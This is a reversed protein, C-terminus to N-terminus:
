PNVGEEIYLKLMEDNFTLRNEPGKYKHQLKKIEPALSQMSIMSRTSKVTFPTLLGMIIITLLAIAIAYNPILGYLFALMWAVLHFIPQFIGGVFHTISHM